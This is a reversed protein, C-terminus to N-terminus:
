TSLLHKAQNRKCSRNVNLFRNGAAEQHFFILYRLLGVMASFLCNLLFFSSNIILIVSFLFNTNTPFLPSLHFTSAVWFVFSYIEKKEFWLRTFRQESLHCNGFLITLLSALLISLFLFNLWANSVNVFSFFLFSLFHPNKFEKTMFRPSKFGLELVIEAICYKNTVHLLTTSKREFYYM